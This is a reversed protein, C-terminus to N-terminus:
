YPLAEPVRGRGTFGDTLRYVAESLLLPLLWSTWLLIAIMDPPSGLQMVGPVELLARFTVPSLTVLYNRVMWRRHMGVRQGRIALWGTLATALWVLATATFAIRIAPPAPSTLILGTAGVCGVLIGGLYARGTWRHLRPHPRPWQSLFQVMGLVITTAGGALHTWLWGRREWFMTYAGPDLQRYQDYVKALFDVGMLAVALLALALGVRWALRSPSFGSERSPDM